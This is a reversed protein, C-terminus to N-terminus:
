LSSIKAFLEIKGYNKSYTEYILKSGSYQRLTDNIKNIYRNKNHRDRSFLLFYDFELPLQRFDVEQPWRYITAKFQTKPLFMWFEVPGIIKANEPVIAELERALLSNMPEFKKIDYYINAALLLILYTSIAVFIFKSRTSAIIFAINFISFVLVYPMLMDFGSSSFLVLSTCFVFCGMLSSNFARKNSKKLFLGFVLLFMLPLFYIANKDLVYSNLILMINKGIGDFIDTNISNVRKLLVYTRSHGLLYFFNLIFIAGSIIIPIAFAILPLVKKNKIFQFLVVFGIAMSVSLTFPHTLFGLACFMGAIFINKNSSVHLYKILFLLAILVFLLAWSEPRAYRFISHYIPIALLAFLGFGVARNPLALQKLIKFLAVISFLGALVSAFRALFISYGFITFLIGQILPFMFNSDGGSGVNTNHILQGQSFNYAPNTYWPEDSTIPRSDTLLPVEILM